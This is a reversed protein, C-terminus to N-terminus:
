WGLLETAQRYHKENLVGGIQAIVAVVVGADDTWGAFPIFDPIVDLPTIVYLIAAGIAVKAWWPVEEDVMCFYLAVLDKSFPIKSAFQSIFSFFQEASPM